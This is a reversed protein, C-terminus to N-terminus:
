ALDKDFDPEQLVGHKVRIRLVSFFTGFDFLYNVSM